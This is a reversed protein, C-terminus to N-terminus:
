LNQSIVSDAVLTASFDRKRYTGRLVPIGAWLNSANSIRAQLPIRQRSGRTPLEKPLSGSAGSNESPQHGAVSYRETDRMHYAVAELQALPSAQISGIRFTGVRFFNGMVGNRPLKM